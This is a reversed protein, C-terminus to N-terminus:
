LGANAMTQEPISNNCYTEIIRAGDALNQEPTLSRAFMQGNLAIEHAKKDNSRVWDLKDELDSMDAKVPVYHEWAKIRDYYWQRYGQQSAVKLVCCGLHMRVLMNSWTNTFGDIDIAFKDQVWDLEPIRPKIMNADVYRPKDANNQAGSLAFDTYKIQRGLMVLRLRPLIDPNFIGIPDCDKRGHGNDLGRWRVTSSRVHWNGGMSRSIGQAEAFNQSLTIFPDPLPIIHPVRSSYAFRAGSSSDGDGIQASLTKVESNCAQLMQVLPFTREFFFDAHERTRSSKAQLSVRDAARTIEIDFPFSSNSDVSARMKPPTSGIKELKRRTESVLRKAFRVERRVIQSPHFKAAWYRM